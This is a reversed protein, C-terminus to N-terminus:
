LSFYSEVLGGLYRPEFLKALLVFLAGLSPMIVSPGLLRFALLVLILSFFEMTAFFRDAKPGLIYHLVRSGDLPPVPIMNLAALIVNTVMFSMLIYANYSDPEVWSPAGRHAAWLLLLGGFALALNSAPGAVAVIMNGARPNRFNLPNVPAPKPGGIIFTQAAICLLPLLITWFLDIHPIPNLTLRGMSKGTPDGLKWATWVHACEHFVLSFVLVALGLALRVPDDPLM